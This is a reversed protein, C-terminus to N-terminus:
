AMSLFMPKARTTCIIDMCFVFSLRINQYKIIVQGEAQGVDTRGIHFNAGQFPPPPM